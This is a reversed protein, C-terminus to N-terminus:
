GPSVDFAEIYPAFRERIEDADLGWDEARYAHAGHKHQPNEGRFARMRADAAESREIGFHEYIADISAM